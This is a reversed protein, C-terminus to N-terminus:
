DRTWRVYARCWALRRRRYDATLRIRVVSRRSQLGQELLRRRITQGNVNTHTASRMQGRLIEATASRERLTSLGISRDEQRTTSPRQADLVVERRHPELPISGSKFDPSCLHSVQLRRGIKRLEIGSQLLALAIGREDASLRQCASM